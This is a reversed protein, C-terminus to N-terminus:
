IPCGEPYLLFLERQGRRYATDYQRQNISLEFCIERPTGGACRLRFVALATPHEQLARDVKALLLGLELATDQRPAAPPALVALDEAAVPTERLTKGRWENAISRMAGSMFSLLDVSTSWRRRGDMARTIAENLLDDALSPGVRRAWVRAIESLRVTEATGLRSM